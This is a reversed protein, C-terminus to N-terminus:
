VTHIENARSGSVTDEMRMRAGDELKDMIEMTPEEADMTEVVEPKLM